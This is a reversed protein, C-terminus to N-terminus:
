AGNLEGEPPSFWASVQDLLDQAHGGTAAVEAAPADALQDSDFDVTVRSGSGAVVASMSYCVWEATHSNREVVLTLSSNNPRRCEVDQGLAQQVATLLTAPSAAVFRTATSHHHRMRAGQNRPRLTVIPWGHGADVAPLGLINQLCARDATADTNDVIVQAGFIM